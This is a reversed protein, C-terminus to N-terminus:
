CEHLNEIRSFIGDLVQRMRRTPPKQEKHEEWQIRGAKDGFGNDGFLVSSGCNFILYFVFRINELEADAGCCKQWRELMENLSFVIIKSKDKENLRENREIVM